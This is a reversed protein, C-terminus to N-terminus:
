FVVDGDDGDVDSNDYLDLDFDFADKNDYLDFDFNNDVVFADTTSATPGNNLSLRNTTRQQPQQQDQQQDLKGTSDSHHQVDFNPRRSHKM